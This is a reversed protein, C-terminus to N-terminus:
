SLSYKKRRRKGGKHEPTSCNYKMVPIDHRSKLPIGLRCSTSHQPPYRAGSTFSNDSSISSRRSLVTNDNSFTSVLLQIVNPCSEDQTNSSSSGRIDRSRTSAYSKSSPSLLSYPQVTWTRFENPFGSVDFQFITTLLFLSYQSIHSRESEGRGGTGGGGGGGGWRVWYLM